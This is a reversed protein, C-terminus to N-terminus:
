PLIFIVESSSLPLLILAPGQPTDWTSAVDFMRQLTIPEQLNTNNNSILWIQTNSWEQRYIEKPIKFANSM